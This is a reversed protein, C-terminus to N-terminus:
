AQGLVIKFCLCEKKLSDSPSVTCDFLRIMNKTYNGHVYQGTETGYMSFQGLKTQKLKKPDDDYLRPVAYSIHYPVLLIITFSAFVLM